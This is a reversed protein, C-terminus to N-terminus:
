IDSVPSYVYGESKDDIFILRNGSQDPFIERIGINHQFDTVIKWDELYFYHIHGM